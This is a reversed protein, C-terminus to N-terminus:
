IKSRGNKKGQYDYLARFQEVKPKPPPPAPKKRLPAVPKGGNFMTQPPQPQITVM